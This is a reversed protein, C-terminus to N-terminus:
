TSKGTAKRAARTRTGTAPEGPFGVVIQDPWGDGNVDDAWCLMCKSYGNAGDGYNGVKRIEHKKWTPAEYWLDGVMIDMKGDKNVDAIAVGESRFVNDVVTKKWRVNTEDGTKEVSAAPLAALALGILGVCGILLRM